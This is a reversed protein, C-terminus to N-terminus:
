GRFGLISRIFRIINQILKNILEPDSPKEEL